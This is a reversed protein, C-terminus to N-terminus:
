NTVSIQKLNLNSINKNEQFYQILIEDLELPGINRINLKSILTASTSWKLNNDDDLYKIIKTLLQKKM